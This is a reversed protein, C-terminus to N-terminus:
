PQLKEAEEIFSLLRKTSIGLNVAAETNKSRKAQEVRGQFYSFESRALELASVLAAQDGSRKRQETGLSLLARAVVARRLDESEQGGEAVFAAVEWSSLLVKTDKLVVTSMSRGRSPPAAILQEWITEMCKDADLAPEAPVSAKAPAAPASPASPTAKSASEIDHEEPKPPAPEEEVSAASAQMMEEWAAHDVKSASKKKTQATAAAANQRALVEELDARLALLQEFAHTVSSETYDKQFPQRWNECFHRLHVM